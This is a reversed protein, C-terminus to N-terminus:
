NLVYRVAFRGGWGFDFDSVIIFSPGTDVALNLPFDRFTYELGLVADAGLVLNTNLDLKRLGFNGGFGYYWEFDNSLAQNREYLGQIWLNNSGGGLTVELASSGAFFHKVNVGGGGNFVYGGKLGIATSYSQAQSTFSTLIFALYVLRKM